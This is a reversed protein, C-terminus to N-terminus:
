VDFKTDAQSYSVKPGVYRLKEAWKPAVRSTKHAGNLIPHDTNFKEVDAVLQSWQISRKWARAFDDPSYPVRDQYGERVIREAPNTLSTLFDPTTGRAPREFGLDHFYQVASHVPGFYIQRGEYLLTIKDFTKFLHILRPITKTPAKM